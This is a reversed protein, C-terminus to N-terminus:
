FNFDFLEPSSESSTEGSSTEAPTQTESTLTQEYLTKVEPERENEADGEKEVTISDEELNIKLLTYSGSPTEFTEGVKNLVIDVEPDEKSKINVEIEDLYLTESHTLEVTENIRQDLITAKAVKEIIGSEIRNRTITFDVVKFEFAAKEDGIRARVSEGGEADYFLLLSKSPDKLDEEIYGELQLRYAVRELDALYIGFPVPPPPPVPKNFIFNGESDLYIEPPTFVDFTVDAEQEDAEPWLGQTQESEPRPLATYPSDDLSFTVQDVTRDVGNGATLYIGIGALLVIIAFALLLKDYLKSM